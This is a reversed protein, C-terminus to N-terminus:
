HIGMKHWLWAGLATAISSAGVGKILKIQGEAVDIKRWYKKDDDTHAELTTCIRELVKDQADFRKNQDDFRDRLMEVVQEEMM